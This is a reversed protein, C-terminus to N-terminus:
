SDLERRCFALCRGVEKVTDGGKYEYEINAPIAWRRDRL